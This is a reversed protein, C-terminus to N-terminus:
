WWAGLALAFLAGLKTGGVVQGVVETGGIATLTYTDLQVRGVAGALTDWNAGLETTSGLGSRARALGGIAAHMAVPEVFALAAEGDHHVFDADQGYTLSASALGGGFRRSMAFTAELEGGPETLGEPKYALGALVGVANRFPDLFAYSASASPRTQGVDYAVGARLTIRGGLLAEASVAGIAQARAGGWGGEVSAGLGPASADPGGPLRARIMTADSPDAAAVGSVFLVGLALRVM